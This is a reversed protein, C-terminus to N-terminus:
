GGNGASRRHRLRGLQHRMARLEVVKPPGILLARDELSAPDLQCHVTALPASIFLADSLEFADQLLAVEVRSRAQIAQRLRYGITGVPLTPFSSAATNCFPRSNRPAPSKAATRSVLVGTRGKGKRRHSPLCPRSRLGGYRASSPAARWRSHLRRAARAVLRRLPTQYQWTACPASGSHPCNEPVVLAMRAPNRISAAPDVSKLMIRELENDLTSAKLPYPAPM